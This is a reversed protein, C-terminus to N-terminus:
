NETASITGGIDIDGIGGKFAKRRKTIASDGFTDKAWKKLDRNRVSHMGTRVLEATIDTLFVPIMLISKGIEQLPSKKSFLKEKGIISECIDSSALGIKGKPLKDAEEAVVSLIKDRFNGVREDVIKLTGFQKALDKASHAHIGTKKLLIQTSKTLALLQAYPVFAQRAKLLGGFFEKFRRRREDALEWFEDALPEETGILDVTEKRLQEPDTFREWSGCCLVVRMAEPGFQREIAECCTWDACYAPQLQSFDGRDYYALLNL